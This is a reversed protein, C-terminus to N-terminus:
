LCAGCKCSSVKTQKFNCLRFSHCKGSFLCRHYSCADRYSTGCFRFYNAELAMKFSDMRIKIRQQKKKGGAFLLSAFIGGSFFDGSYSWGGSIFDLTAEGM